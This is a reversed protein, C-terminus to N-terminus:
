VNCRIKAEVNYISLLILLIGASMPKLYLIVVSKATRSCEKRSCQHYYYYYYHFLIIQEPLQHKAVNEDDNDNKDINIVPLSVPFQFKSYLNFERDINIPSSSYIYENTGLFVIFKFLLVYKYLWDAAPM